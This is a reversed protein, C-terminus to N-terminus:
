ARPAAGPTPAAPKQSAVFSEVKSSPPLAEVSDDFADSILDSDDLLEPAYVTPRTAPEPVATEALPQSVVQPAPVPPVSTETAQRSQAVLRQLDRQLEEIREHLKLLKKSVTVATEAHENKLNILTVLIVIPLLAILGAIGIAICIFGEDM